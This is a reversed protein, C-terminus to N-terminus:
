LVVNSQEVPAGALNMLEGVLLLGTVGPIHHGPAAIVLGDTGVAHIRRERIRVNVTDIHRGPLELIESRV